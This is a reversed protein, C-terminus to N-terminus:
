RRSGRASKRKKGKAGAEAPRLLAIAEAAVAEGRGIADLGENSTAKVNVRAPAAGMARALNAAMEERKAGIRPRELFVPADVNFVRVGAARVKAAAAALLGLSDADRWRESTDPFHAGIDGLGVAGLIADIVAHALADGDSHARVGRPSKLRVGGVILPKGGPVLAHIDRGIGIRAGPPASPLSIGSGSAALLEEVRRLDEPRTVKINEPTSEVLAVPVGCAECFAADDTVILGERRARALLPLIVERRFAQPTQAAWLGERPVTAGIIPARTGSTRQRKITDTIPCAAIAAGKKAAAFITRRILEPSTLPRAADQVLLVPARSLKAAAQLGKAVSDQRLKGGAVIKLVRLEEARPHLVKRTRALDERRVVVVAGEIEEAAALARLTHVLLPEGLVPRFAKAEGKGLRVGRGAAAVVAVALPKGRGAPKGTAM